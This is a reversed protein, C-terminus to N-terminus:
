KNSSWLKYPPGINLLIPINPHSADSLSIPAHSTLRLHTEKRSARICFFQYLFPVSGNICCSEWNLLEIWNYVTIALLLLAPMIVYIIIGNMRISWQFLFLMIVYIIQVTCISRNVLRKDNESRNVVTLSCHMTVSGLITLTWLQVLCDRHYAMAAWEKYIYNRKLM